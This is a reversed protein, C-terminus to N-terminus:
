RTRRTRITLDITALPLVNRAEDGDVVIVHDEAVVLIRGRVTAEIHSAVVEVIEGTQEFESLRAKFTISGARPTFGGASRRTVVLGVRELRADLHETTTDISVYDKGVHTVSGTVTRGPALVSVVDGRNATEVAVDHLTRRRLRGIETEQEVIETEARFEAGVRERLERALSELPDPDWREPGRSPPRPTPKDDEVM